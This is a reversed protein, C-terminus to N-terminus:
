LSLCTVRGNVQVSLAMTPNNVPRIEINNHSLSYPPVLLLLSIPLHGTPLAILVCMNILNATKYPHSKHLGFVIVITVDFVVM